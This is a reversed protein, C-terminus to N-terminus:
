IIDTLLTNFRCKNLENSLFDNNIKNINLKIKGENLLQLQVWYDSIRFEYFNSRVSKQSMNIINQVALRVKKEPLFTEDVVTVDNQIYKVPQNSEYELSTVGQKQLYDDFVGFGWTQHQLYNAIMIPNKLGQAELFKIILKNQVDFNYEFWCPINVIKEFLKEKLKGYKLKYDFSSYGANFVTKLEPQFMTDAMSDKKNNTIVAFREALGM